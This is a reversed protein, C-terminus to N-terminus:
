PHPRPTPPHVLGALTVPTAPPTPKSHFAVGKLWLRLAQWHIRATVAWSQAPHRWFAHRLAGPTAPVVHGSVSTQLLTGQADTHDIRAVSRAATGQHTCLFRFAYRGQVSCFPSVHFVKDAWHTTGWQPQDLVYCHREGFTNNVEAVTARLSGDARLAHWFSVPKFAHGLVRPFCQLWLEGDADTIGQSRLVNDVWAVLTPMDTAGDGHDRAEFRLWPGQLGAQALLAPQLCLTRVPLWLFCAPYAFAHHTPRLRKHRVQGCALLPMRPWHGLGQAPPPDALPTTM